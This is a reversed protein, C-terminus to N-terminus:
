YANKVIIKMCIYAKLQNVVESFAVLPTINLWQNVTSSSVNGEKHDLQINLPMNSAVPFSNKVFDSNKVAYSRTSSNQIIEQVFKIGM